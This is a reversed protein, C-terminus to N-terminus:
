PRVPNPFLMPWVLGSAAPEDYMGADAAVDQAEHADLSATEDPTTPETEVTAPDIMSM